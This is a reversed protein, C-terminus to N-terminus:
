GVACREASFMLIATPLTGTQALQRVINGGHLADRGPLILWKQWYIPKLLVPAANM